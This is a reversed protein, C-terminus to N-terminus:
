RMTIRGGPPPTVRGGLREAVHSALLDAARPARAVAACAAAAEPVRYGDGGDCALYTPMAVRVRDSTALLRADTTNLQGVV